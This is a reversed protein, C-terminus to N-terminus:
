VRYRVANDVALIVAAAGVGIAIGVFGALVLLPVVFTAAITAVLRETPPGGDPEVDGPEATALDDPDHEHPTARWM